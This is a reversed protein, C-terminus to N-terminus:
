KGGRVIKLNRELLGELEVPSLAGSSGALGAAKGIANLPSGTLTNALQVGKGIIKPIAGQKPTKQAAANVKEVQNDILAKTDYLDSLRSDLAKAADGGLGQRATSKLGMRTNEAAQKSLGSAAEGNANFANIEQGHLRALDNVDKYTLGNIKAKNELAKMKSLGEIDNTKAYFENLDDIGQQVYNVRIASKGEGITQGFSKISHGGSTDKAFESDVQRSLKPIESNIKSQLDAQTKIGKTDLSEFTRKAAPIDETGGQIIQGVAEEPSLSPKILEGVKGIGSKSDKVANKITDSIGGAFNEAGTKMGSVVDSVNPNFEGEPTAGLLALGGINALGQAKNVIEKLWPNKDQLAQFDTGGKDVLNMIFNSTKQDLSNPDLSATNGLAKGVTGVVGGITASIPALVGGAIDGALDFGKSAFNGLGGSMASSADTAGKSIASQVGSIANPIIGQISSRPDNESFQPNQNTPAKPIVSTPLAGYKAQYQARTMQIPGSKSVAPAQGYKATYEARTMQVPNM